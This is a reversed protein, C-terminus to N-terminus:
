ELLGKLIEVMEGVRPEFLISGHHGSVEHIVINEIGVDGWGLTPDPYIGWLQQSARFLMVTGPYPQPKYNRIAKMNAKEVDVLEQPLLSRASEKRKAATVQPLEKIRGWGDKAYHSLYTRRGKWDAVRLNAVHKSLYQVARYFRMKTYSNTSLYNPYGPGYSDVFALLSVQKGQALLQQAIEYAAYGGGSSGVLSYPGDPEVEQIAKLFDTAIDEIREFPAVMGSLGRSQLMYVPQDEGLRQSLHRFRIPNGGKGPFCFLPPKNGKTQVSVLPSWDVVLDKQRLIDAQESINSAKYFISLPLKAGFVKEIEVFLQAALLSDGGLEFFDDTIGIPKIELVREWVVVFKTEIEGDPAIFLTSLEPRGLKSDSLAKRDVKSTPTLPMEDLVRFRAPIMYDPLKASLVKRLEGVKLKSENALVLYAILQVKGAAGRRGEVV